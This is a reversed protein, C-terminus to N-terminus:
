MGGLAPARWAAGTARGARPSGSAPPRSAHDRLRAEAPRAALSHPAALLAVTAVCLPLRALHAADLGRPAPGAWTGARPPRCGPQGARLQEAAPRLCPWSRRWEASSPLRRSSGLKDPSGLSPPPSTPATQRIGRRRRVCSLFPSPSRAAGTARSGDGPVPATRPARWGEDPGDPSLRAAIQPLVAIRDCVKEAARGERGFVVADSSKHYRGGPWAAPRARYAATTLSASGGSKWGVRLASGSTGDQPRAAGSHTFGPIAHVPLDGAANRAAKTARLERM